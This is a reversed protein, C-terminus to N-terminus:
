PSTSAEAGLLEALLDEYATIVGDLAYRDVIRRRAAQGLDDVEVTPRSLMGAWAAALDAANSPAVVVGTPGVIEACDGVDTVVCPVACAMAEGVINPFGESTSACTAIDFANTVAPIDTREGILHFAAAQHGPIAAGLEPNDWTCGAGVLAFHVDPRQALLETAAAIFTRHGKVPDLRGVMGVLPTTADLGLEARIQGRAQSDPRFTDVDFGNPIISWRPPRYGRGHHFKRGAKSNVIVLTARSSLRALVKLVLGTLGRYYDAGMDSCRVNWVVQRVGALRAALLGLLDAHYLWTMVLHPRQRRILRYLRWLGSPHPVGLPMGIATVPAGAQEMATSMTGRSTLSVVRSSFRQRDMGSLLKLLMTEAGGRDLGTIVHLIRRPAATM